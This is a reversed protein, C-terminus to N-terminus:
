LEGAVIGEFEDLDQSVIRGAPSVLFVAPFSRVGYAQQDVKASALVPYTVEHAAVFEEAASDAAPTLGIVQLGQKGFKSRLEM